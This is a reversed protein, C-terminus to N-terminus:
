EFVKAPTWAERVEAPQIQVTWTAIDAAAAVTSGLFFRSDPYADIVDRYIVIM